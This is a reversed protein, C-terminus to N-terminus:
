KGLHVQDKENEICFYELLDTDPMLIQNFRLTFPKTYTKPDDITMEVEMHGFDRRLYKETLHLSESRPHQFIDLPARDNFGVTEIVLTRGEWRGVSYGLWSPQPDVPLKRGDMYIQRFTHEGEYLIVVLQPTQVIRSPLPIFHLNPLTPPECAASTGNRNVRAGPRVSVEGPKLDVLVNLFFRSIERIDDGPVAHALEDLGSFLREIEGPKPTEVQWIGSLDPKGDATRPAPASLNPKGDKTRPIGPTPHNLWQAGVSVLAVALLIIIKVPRSMM